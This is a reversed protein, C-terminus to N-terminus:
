SAKKDDRTYFYKFLWVPGAFAAWMGLGVATSFIRDEMSDRGDEMYLVIVLVVCGAAVVWIWTRCLAVVIKKVESM